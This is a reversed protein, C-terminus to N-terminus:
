SSHSDIEHPLPSHCVKLPSPQSSTRKRKVDNPGSAPSSQRINNGDSHIAMGQMAQTVSGHEDPTVGAMDAHMDRSLSIWPLSTDSMMSIRMDTM